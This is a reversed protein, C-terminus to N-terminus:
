ASSSSLVKAKERQFEEETLAGQNKLDALRAIQDATSSGPAAATQRVYQKFAEDQQRAYQVSREHMKGGRFILYILVGLFPFLILAIVWVAKEWGKLDHSRFLDFLINILLFIWLFLIFFEIISVFIDLLPYQTSLM